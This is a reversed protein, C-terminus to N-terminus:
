LPQRAGVAGAPDLEGRAQAITGIGTSHSVRDFRIEPAESAMEVVLLVNRFTESRLHRRLGEESEWLEDLMVARAGQIEQYLRCSICGEVLKIREIMSGLIVLAEKRKRAPILMRITAHIRIGPDNPEEAVPPLRRSETM